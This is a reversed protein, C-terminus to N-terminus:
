ISFKEETLLIEADRGVPDRHFRERMIGDKVYNAIALFSMGQDLALYQYNVTGKVTDVSDYFGYEGYIDPYRKLMERLNKVAAEPRTALALFSAYPTVVGRDPYGKAGLNPTGYERYIWYKGNRIACPAMGWVPYKKERLAHDMHLDTVVLNNKGLGEPALEQEKMLLTPSLFEFLSGGWSPVFKKNLYTYFGEFVSVGFLPAETGEPIQKQWDWEPPLTRYIRAWHEKDIDGKGIAIFSALRAETALLGYHYRSFLDKEADFGLKLQGNSGDYFVSFDLQKLLETAKDGFQEPFAERIVILGAALWGNDVTSVYKKTVRLNHTHYYNYWFGSGWRNLKESTALSTQINRVAEEKSILSLDYAAVNALWYLAINTPTTYNGVGSTAGMRIHDLSLATERDIAHKFYLWTDRAVETLFEKDNQINLLANRRSEQVMQIPFGALNDRHSQFVLDESGFFTIEDVSLFGKTERDPAMLVLEFRDLRDFDLAQFDSRPVAIELWKGQPGKWLQKKPKKIEVTVDKGTMDMLGVAIKGGFAEWDSKRVLFVLFKSQSVDMGNLPAFVRAVQKAPLTYEIGMSGGHRIGDERDHFLKLKTGDTESTKWESGFKTKGVGANFDDILEFQSASNTTKGAPVQSFISPAPEQSACGSLSLFILLLASSKLRFPTLFL